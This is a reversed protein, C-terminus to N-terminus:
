RVGARMVLLAKASYDRAWRSSSECRMIVEALREMSSPSKRIITVSRRAGALEYARSLSNKLLAGTQGAHSLM